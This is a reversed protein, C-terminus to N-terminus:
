RTPIRSRTSDVTVRCEADVLYPVGTPDLPAGTAADLRLPKGEVTKVSRLAPLTERWVRSGCGGGAKQASLVAEITEREYLSTLELLRLAALESINTDESTELMEEYLAKATERSGGETRMRAAMLRLFPPAGELASGREYIEAARDFEGLKWHIFGLHQYLRVESPNNAIGKEAIKVAEGPDLAPLVVAGYSYPAMFHPDMTTASDLLPYLLRPDLDGLEDIAVDQKGKIIKDGLYQLSRMWYWDAILGDFGLTFGKLGAASIVLDEDEVGAPLSPRAATMHGGLLNIAAFGLAVAALSIVIERARHTM